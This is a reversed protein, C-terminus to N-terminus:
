NATSSGSAKKPLPATRPFTYMFGLGTWLDEGPIKQGIARQAPAGKRPLIFLLRVQARTVQLRHKFYLGPFFHDM